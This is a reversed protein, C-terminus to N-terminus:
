KKEKKIDDIYKQKEIKAFLIKKNKHVRELMRVAREKNNKIAQKKKESKEIYYEHIIKRYINILILDTGSNLKQRTSSPNNWKKVQTKLRFIFREPRDNQSFRKIKVKNKTTEGLIQPHTERRRYVNDIMETKHKRYYNKMEKQLRPKNKQYWHAHYIKREQKTMNNKGKTIYTM